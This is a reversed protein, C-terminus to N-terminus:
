SGYDKGLLDALKERLLKRARHIRTRVTSENIKLAEAVERTSMEEVASLVLAHRLHDPLSSTMRQIVELMEGSQVPAAAENATTGEIELTRKRKTRTWRSLSLRWAIRALWARQDRILPLRSANKVVRIFTEQAVDEADHSDRLISYAIRYVFAAHERVLLTIADDTERAQNAGIVLALREEYTMNPETM